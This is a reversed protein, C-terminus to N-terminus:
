LFYIGLAIQIDDGFKFNSFLKTKLIRTVDVPLWKPLYRRAEAIWGHTSKKYQRMRQDRQLCVSTTHNLTRTKEKTRAPITNRRM